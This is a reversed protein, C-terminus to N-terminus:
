EILSPLPRVLVGTPTRERLMKLTRQDQDPFKQLAKYFADEDAKSLYLLDSQARDLVRGIALYSADVPSVQLSGMKAKIPHLSVPDPQVRSGSVSNDNRDEERSQYGDQCYVAIYGSKLKSIHFTFSGTGAQSQQSDLRENYKPCSGNGARQDSGYAYAGALIGNGNVDDVITGPHENKDQTLGATQGVLVM